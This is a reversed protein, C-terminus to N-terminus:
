GKIARVYEIPINSTRSPDRITEASEVRFGSRGLLERLQKESRVNRGFGRPPKVRYGVVGQYVVRILSRIRGLGNLQLPDLNAIILTGGLRLIRYMEAMTRDPETFHIVLSIFATDFAGDPLSTQQCDEAQFIVNPAKVQQKALDLMGQSIDTALVTDAKGALVHTYFGTGCGFEVLRGLNGERIVRERVMSRTNGGIQLDVVRDYRDAVNSWFEALENGM